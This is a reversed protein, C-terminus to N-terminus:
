HLPCLHKSADMFSEWQKSWENVILIKWEPRAPALRMNDGERPHMCMHSLCTFPRLDNHLYGLVTPRPGRCSWAFHLLCMIFQISWDVNKNHVLLKGVMFEFSLCSLVKWGTIKLFWQSSTLQNDYDNKIISCLEIILFTYFLTRLLVHM